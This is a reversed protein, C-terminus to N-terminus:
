QYSIGIKIYANLEKTTLATFAILGGYFILPIFLSWSMENALFTFFGCIISFLGAYQFVMGSFIFINRTLFHYLFSSIIEFMLGLSFFVIVLEVDGLRQQFVTIIFVLAIMAFGSLTFSVQEGRQAVDILRSINSTNQPHEAYFRRAFIVGLVHFGGLYFFTALLLSSGVYEHYM